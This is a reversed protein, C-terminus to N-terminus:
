DLKLALDAAKLHTYRKLMALTKHGTISSVEMTNLGKEFLRSTSEHRLDHFRLDQIGARNCARTFAQTVSDPRTRFVKDSSQRDIGELISLAKSSLPVARSEGNKTDPLLIFRNEIDVNEWKVSLLESRRMATEIALEVITKVENTDSLAALLLELENEVLRRDRGKSASPKRILQVPNATIPIGWDKIAVSFIHSLNGLERLVTATAKGEKLRKDRYAAIHKGQISAVILHGLGRKLLRLRRIESEYCKKTPSVESQYRDILEGLSTSEAETRDLFTGHDIQTEISRAWQQAQAKSKFTKTIPTEEKRRIQTQWSGSPLKRFTAM